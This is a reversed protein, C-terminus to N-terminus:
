MSLKLYVRVNESFTSQFVAQFGSQKGAVTSGDHYLSGLHSKIWATLEFPSWEAQPQNHYSERHIISSINRLIYDLSASSTISSRSQLKDLM